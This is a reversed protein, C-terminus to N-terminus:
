SNNIVHQIKAIVTDWHLEYRHGGDQTVTCSARHPILSLTNSYDILDDDEALFLNILNGNTIETIEEELDRYQDVHAQTINIVSGTVFNTCDIGVRAQMRASPQMSPNIIVCPADFRQAFYNAWFGGLSTGVFIIPYSTAARVISGVLDIIAQPVTPLDPSIVTYKSFHDRLKVSKSSNGTSGFGHLYIITSM